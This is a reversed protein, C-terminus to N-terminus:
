KSQLYRSSHFADMILNSNITNFTLYPVSDLYGEVTKRLIYLKSLFDFDKKPANGFYIMCYRLVAQDLAIIFILIFFSSPSQLYKVKINLVHQQKNLFRTFHQFSGHSIIFFHAHHCIRGCM